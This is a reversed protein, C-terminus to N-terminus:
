KTGTTKPRQEAPKTHAYVNKSNKYASKELKLAAQRVKEMGKADLQVFEVLDLTEKTKEEDGLFGVKINGVGRAYYKIQFGPEEEAWERIVLVDEYDGAPVSVKIGMEHAAARDTWGVAPGWGQSYSPTNLKPEAKMMIGAKSDEFGHLWAPAELLKGDEYVEPYQGLHWVNGDNDQAFFVLETEELQGDSFDQDWCVVARIGAIEKTLDTVNFVVRHPIAAGEDDITTGEWALQMGPKLPFWPNTVNAPDDFNSPDFNEWKQEPTDREQANVAGSYLGSLTFLAIIVMLSSAMGVARQVFSSFESKM